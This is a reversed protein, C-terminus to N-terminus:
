VAKNISVSSLNSFFLYYVWTGSMLSSLGGGAESFMEVSYYIYQGRGRKKTLLSYFITCGIGVEINTYFFALYAWCVKFNPNPLKVLGLGYENSFIFNADFMVLM